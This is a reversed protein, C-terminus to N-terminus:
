ELQFNQIASSMKIKQTNAPLELLINLLKKENKQIEKGQLLPM